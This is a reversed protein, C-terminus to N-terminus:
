KPKTKRWGKLYNFVDMRGSYNIEITQENRILRSFLRHHGDIIIPEPQIFGTLCVNDVEIPEIKDLTSLYLVRGIHWDRNVERGKDDFRLPQGLNFTYPSDILEINKSLVEKPTIPGNSELWRFIANVDFYDLLKSLLITNNM